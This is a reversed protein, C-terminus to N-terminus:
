GVWAIADIEVKIGDLAAGVTTRCPRHGGFADRYAADFAEFDGIDALFCTCRVVRDLDAGAARLLARINSLTLATEEAISGAVIAGDPGIPGQGSVFVLDGCRLAPTYSGTAPAGGPAVIATFPGQGM